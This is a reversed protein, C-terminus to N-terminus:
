GRKKDYGRSKRDRPHRYKPASESGTFEYNEAAEIRIGDFIVSNMGAIIKKAIKSDVEVSSARRFIEIQGIEVDQTGAVGTVLEIVDRKSIDKGKGINFVIRSMSRSKRPGREQNSDKRGGEGAEQTREGGQRDDGARRDDGRQRDDRRQREEKWSRGERGSRGDRSYREGREGRESREGSRGSIRNRDSTERADINLDPANKYYELFRNFEVSVFRKIIEEKTLDGLMEYAKPMYPDIRVDNVQSNKMKEVMTFLQRECIEAGGPVPRQEIKKRVVREIQNMRGREKLNIISVAMGEKGARGTRGSRHTYVENDDPLNYNIIHTLDNVDLGRAAVDTAVLVSLNGDRFKQMVYDRQAQSLDGHLAEANYGDSMLSAAVDKTEQRTRCFVIGYIDPHYDVIRKLANYRNKASVMHFVHTVNDAGANKTGVTIELPDSMYTRAITNIESSMTASFLLTNKERPTQALIADLDERFGMKLMEDAEDLVLTEVGLLDIRKRRVLDHIRGPTAVVVHAGRKLIGIQKDISAGGYVAVITLGKLYKGFSELDRTIQMCLERTPSLVLLQPFASELDINQLTPLGFAATKGTGTQALGIIDRKEALLAPIVQKQIPTPVSFGLDEIARLIEPNLEMENFLM